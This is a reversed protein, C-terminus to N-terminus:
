PLDVRLIADEFSDVVALSVPSGSSLLALGSPSNIKAPLGGLVTAIPLDPSGAVTTV